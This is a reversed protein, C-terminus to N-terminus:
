PELQPGPIQGAVNVLVAERFIATWAYLVSGAAAMAVYPRMASQSTEATVSMLERKSSKFSKLASMELQSVEPTVLMYWINQPAEANLWGSLKSVELTVSMRWMNRTRGM